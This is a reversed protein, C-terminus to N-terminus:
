TFKFKKKKELSKQLSDTAVFAPTGTADEQGDETKQPWKEAWTAAQVAWWRGVILQFPQMSGTVQGPGRCNKERLGFTTGMRELTNRNGFLAMTIASPEYPSLMSERPTGIQVLEFSNSIDIFNPKSKGVNMSQGIAQIIDTILWPSIINM